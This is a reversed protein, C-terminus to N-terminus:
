TMTQRNKGISQHKAHATLATEEKNKREKMTEVEPLKDDGTKTFSYQGHRNM